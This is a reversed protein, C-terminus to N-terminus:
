EVDRFLLYGGFLTYTGATDGRVTYPENGTTIYVTQGAQLRVIMSAGEGENAAEGDYHESPNVYSSGDVHLYFNAKPTSRIYPFFQYIGAVPATYVGTTVNYHGGNNIKDNDFVITQGSTEFVLDTSLTVYFASNMTELLFLYIIM